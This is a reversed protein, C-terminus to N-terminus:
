TTAGSLDRESRPPSRSGWWTSYSRWLAEGLEDAFISEALQTHWAEFVAAAANTATVRRDWNRLLNRAERARSDSPSANALLPLVDAQIRELDAVSRRPDAEIMEVVRAARYPAAFGTGIAHGYMDPAIRNNASALYGQLSNFAFPM